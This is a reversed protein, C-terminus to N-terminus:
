EDYLIGDLSCEIFNDGYSHVETIETNVKCGLMEASKRLIVPELLNGWEMLETHEVGKPEDYGQYNHSLKERLLENRTKFPSDGMLSSIQSASLLKDNTIKGVM